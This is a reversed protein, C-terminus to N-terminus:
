EDLILIISEQELGKWAVLVTRIIEMNFINLIEDIYEPL